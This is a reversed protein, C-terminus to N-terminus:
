IAAQVGPESNGDEGKAGEGRICKAGVTAARRVPRGSRARRHHVAGAVATDTVGFRVHYLPRHFNRVFLKSGFGRTPDFSMAFDNGRAVDPDMAIHVNVKMPLMPPIIESDTTTKTSQRM